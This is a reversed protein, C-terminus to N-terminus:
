GGLGGLNQSVGGLLVMRDGGGLTLGNGLLRGVLGGWVEYHRQNGVSDVYDESVFQVAALSSDDFAVQEKTTATSQENPVNSHLPTRSQTHRKM